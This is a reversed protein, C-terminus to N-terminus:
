AEQLASKSWILRRWDETDGNALDVAGKITRRVQSYPIKRGTLIATNVAIEAIGEVTRGGQLAKIGFDIGEIVSNTMGISPKYGKLMALLPNGIVPVGGILSGALMEIWAKWQDEEDEPFTGGTTAFYIFMNAILISAWQAAVRKRKGASWDQRTDAVAMNIIQNLQNSFMLVMRLFENNTAYLEPLDIAGGQPQTEIVAKQAINIAEQESKDHAKQYNYVSDFVTLVAFKDMNMIMGFAHTGLWDEAIKLGRIVDNEHLQTSSVMWQQLDRSVVRHKLGPYKEYIEQQVKPNFVRTASYAMHVLSTDRLAFMMSPLQKAATIVNFGLYATAVGRRIEHLIKSVIDPTSYMVKPNIVRDLYKNFTNQGDVSHNAKIADQLDQRGKITNVVQQLPAYAILHEQSEIARQAIGIFNLSIPSQNHDAIDQRKISLGKEVSTYKSQDWASRSAAEAILEMGATTDSEQQVKGSLDRFMPFYNKVKEFKVNFHTEMADALANTREGVIKQIEDALTIYSPYHTQLYGIFQNMTKEDIKNGHLVAAKAKENKSHVYMAMIENINFSKDGLQIQKGLWFAANKRKKLANNIKTQREGWMEGKLQEAVHFNDYFFSVGLEGFIERLMRTPRANKWLFERGKKSKTQKKFEKTGTAALTKTGTSTILAGMMLEMGMKYQDKKTKMLKRGENTAEIVQNALYVLEDTSLERVGKKIKTKTGGLKEQIEDIKKQYSIDIIKQPQKRVKSLVKTAKTRLEKDQLVNYVEQMKKILGPLKAELNRETLVGRIQNLFQKKQQAPLRSQNVLKALESQVARTERKQEIRGLREGQQLNRLREKVQTFLKKNTGKNLEARITDMQSKLAKVREDLKILHDRFEMDSNFGAESAADDLAMGSEKNTRYYKPLAKYEEMMSGDKYPRIKNRYQKREEELPRYEDALIDLRTQLDNYELIKNELDTMIRDRVSQVDDGTRQAISEAERDIMQEVRAVSEESNAQILQQPSAVRVNGKSLDNLLVRYKEGQGALARLYDIIEQIFQKIKASTSQGQRGVWLAAFENALFEEAQELDTIGHKAGVENLLELKKKESLKYNFIAHFAEHPATDERAEQAIKIIGEELDTVGYALGGNPMVIKEVFYVPFGPIIKQLEEYIEQQKKTLGNENKEQAQFRYQGMRVFRKIQDSLHVGWINLKAEGSIKAYNEELHKKAEERTEFSKVLMGRWDFLRFPPNEQRTRIADALNAEKESLENLKEKQEETRAEYLISRIENIESRLEDLREKAREINFDKDYEVEQIEPEIAKPDIQGVMVKGGQKELYKNMFQVYKKDYMRILPQKNIQLDDDAIFRIQTGEENTTSEANRLKTAKDKGIYQDLEAENALAVSKLVEGNNSAVLMFKGNQQRLEVRDVYERLNYREVQHEGNTWAIADYGESVAVSLMRKFALEHYLKKFPADEMAGQKPKAKELKAQIQRFSTRLSEQKTTVMDIMKQTAEIAEKRTTITGEYQEDTIQEFRALRERFKRLETDNAIQQQEVETLQEELKTIQAQEEESLERKYGEREGIQHIDSQVEEIFLTKGFTTHRDTTRVFYILGNEDFHVTNRYPHSPLQMLFNRHGEKDGIPVTYQTHRAELGKRARERQLRRRENPDGYEEEFDSMDPDQPDGFDEEREFVRVDMNQEIQDRAEEWHSSSTDSAIKDMEEDVAEDWAEEDLYDDDERKEDELEEIREELASEYDAEDEYDDRNIEEEAERRADESIRDEDIYDTKDLNEEADQRLSGEDMYERIEALSMNYVYDSMYEHMADYAEDETEFVQEYGSEDEFIWGPAQYDPYQEEFDMEDRRRELEEEYAEEYAEQDFEEDVEVPEIAREQAKLPEGRLIERIPIRNVDLYALMEDKTVSTKGKLFEELGTDVIEAPRVGAKQLMALFQKPQGKRQFKEDELVEILKSKFGMEDVMQKQRPMTFLEQQGPIVTIEPEQFETPNYPNNNREHEERLQEIWGQAMEKSKFLRVQNDVQVQFMDPTNIGPIAQFRQKKEGPQGEGPKQLNMAEYWKNLTNNEEETLTEGAMVKKMIRSRENLGGTIKKAMDRVADETMEGMVKDAKAFAEKQSMSKGHAKANDQFLFGLNDRNVKALTIGTPMGVIMGIAGVYAYSAAMQGWTTGEPYPNHGVAVSAVDAGGKQIMEEAGELGATKLGRVFWNSGGMGLTWLSSLAEVGGNWMGDLSAAVYAKDVDIGADVLETYKDGAESLGFYAYTGIGATLKTLVLAKAMSYFGAGLDESFQEVKGSPKGYHTRIYEQNAATIEKGATDWSNILNDGGFTRLLEYKEKMDETGFFDIANKIVFDHQTGQWTRPVAAGLYRMTNGLVQWEGAVAKSVGEILAGGTQEWASKKIQAQYYEDPTVVQPEVGPQDNPKYPEFVPKQYGFPKLEQNPM